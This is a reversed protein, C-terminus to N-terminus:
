RAVKGGRFRWKPIALMGEKEERKKKRTQTNTAAPIVCGKEKNREMEVSLSAIEQIM